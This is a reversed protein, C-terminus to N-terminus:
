EAMEPQNIVKLMSKVAYVANSTNQRQWVGISPAWKFASRKLLDITERNPKEDFIFQIRDMAWDQVVKGGEFKIVSNERTQNDEKRECKQEALELLKFFKHRETIVVSMTDNFHRICDIARSVTEKDGRKAFTEVKNYISSVFLAKSCGRELGKNIGHIVAASHLIDKELREWEESRKEDEPRAEEKRKAIAKLAKGRWELFATLHGHERNNANEARRVNFGSGGTIVSSACNCHSHLWASLLKKYNTIYREHESEPMTELDANLEAESEEIIQKGRKDPDFSTWSYAQRALQSFEKLSEM